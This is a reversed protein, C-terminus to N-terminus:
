IGTILLDVAAIIADGAHALNAVAPGLAARPVGALEATSLVLAQGKIRFEPNLRSIPKGFTKARILPVVARTSLSSLFDSQIDVLFPIEDRSRPDTNQHVDFQAM